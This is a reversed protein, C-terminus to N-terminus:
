TRSSSHRSRRGSWPSWSSEVNGSSARSPLSRAYLFVPKQSVTLVGFCSRSALSYMFACGSSAGRAPAATHTKVRRVDFPEVRPRDLRPPDVLRPAVLQDPRLGVPVDALEEEDLRALRQTKLEM